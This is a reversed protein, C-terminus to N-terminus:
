RYDFCKKSLKPRNDDQVQRHQKQGKQKNPVQPTAKPKNTKTKETTEGVESYHPEARLLCEYAALEKLQAPRCKGFFRPDLVFALIDHRFVLPQKGDERILATHSSYNIIYGNEIM